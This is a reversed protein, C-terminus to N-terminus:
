FRSIEFSLVGAGGQLPSPPETCLFSSMIIPQFTTIFSSSHYSIVHASPPTYSSSNCWWGCSPFINKIFSPSHSPIFCHKTQSQKPIYLQLRSYFFVWFSLRSNNQCTCNCDLMCCYFQYSFKPQMVEWNPSFFTLYLINGDTETWTHCLSGPFM